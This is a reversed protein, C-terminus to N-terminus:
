ANGYKRKTVKRAYNQRSDHLIIMKVLRIILAVLLLFYAELLVLMFSYFCHIYIVVYLLTTKFSPTRSTVRPFQHRLLAFMFFHHM